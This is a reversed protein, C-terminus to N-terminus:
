KRRKEKQNLCLNKVYPIRSCVNFTFGEFPGHFNVNCAKYILVSSLHLFDAAPFSWAM